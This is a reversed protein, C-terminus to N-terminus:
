LLGRWRERWQIRAYVTLERQNKGTKGYLEVFEWKGNTDYIPETLSYVGEISLNAGKGDEIGSAMIYGSLKYITNPEVALTQAFRADNPAANRIYASHLGTHAKESLKFVTIFKPDQYADTYFNAALGENNSDEFSFNHILNGEALASIFVLSIM